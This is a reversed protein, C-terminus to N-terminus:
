NKKARKAAAKERRIRNKTAHEEPTLNQDLERRRRNRADTKLSPRWKYEKVFKCRKGHCSLASISIEKTKSPNNEFLVMAKGLGKRSPKQVTM